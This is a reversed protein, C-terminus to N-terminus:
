GVVFNITKGKIYIVKKIGATLYGRVKDQGEAEARIVQEDEEPDIEMTGRLKGNVQISITVVSNLLYKDDYRPWECAHVSFKEGLVEWLEEAVFPAFPAL